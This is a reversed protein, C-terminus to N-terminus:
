FAAGEPETFVEPDKLLPNQPSQAGLLVGISQLTNKTEALSNRSGLAMEVRPHNFSTRCFTRWKSTCQTRGWELHRTKELDM